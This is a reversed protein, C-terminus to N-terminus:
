IGCTEIFSPLTHEAQVVGFVLSSSLIFPFFLPYPLLKAVKKAFRITKSLISSNKM